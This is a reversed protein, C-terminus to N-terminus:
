SLLGPKSLGQVNWIFLSDESIKAQEEKYSHNQMDAAGPWAVGTQGLLATLCHNVPIGTSEPFPSSDSCSLGTMRSAM